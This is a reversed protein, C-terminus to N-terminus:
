SGIENWRCLIHCLGGSEIDASQFCLNRVDIMGNFREGPTKVGGRLGNDNGAIQGVAVREDLQGLIAVQKDDIRAADHILTHRVPGSAGVASSRGAGGMRGQFLDRGHGGFGPCSFEHQDVETGAGHIFSARDPAHFFDVGAFDDKCLVHVGVACVLALFLGSATNGVAAFCRFPARGSTEYPNQNIRVRCTM